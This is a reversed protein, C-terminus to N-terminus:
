EEDEGRFDRGQAARGTEKGSLALLAGRIEADMEMKLDLPLSPLRSPIALMAQRLDVLLGQWEALVDAAPVMDGRSQANRLAERDAQEKILRGREDEIRSSKKRSHEVYRRVNEQLDYKGVNNRSLVGSAALAHVQRDSLGMFRAFQMATMAAPFTQRVSPATERNDDVDGVLELLDAKRNAASM